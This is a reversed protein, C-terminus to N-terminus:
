FLRKNILKLHKHSSLYRRAIRCPLGSCFVKESANVLLTFLRSIELFKQLRAFSDYIIFSSSWLEFCEMCNEGRWSLCDKCRRLFSQYIINPSDRSIFIILRVPGKISDCFWHCEVMWDKCLTQFCQRIMNDLQVENLNLQDEGFISRLSVGEPEM